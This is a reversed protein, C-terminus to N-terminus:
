PRAVSLLAHVVSTVPTAVGHRAAARLVAGTIADCELDEGALFARLMSTTADAPRAQLQRLITPIDTAALRAGCLRATEVTEAIMAKALTAIQPDRLIGLPRKTLATLSGSSANVCLKRWQETRFDDVCQVVARSGAFLRAVDHGDSDDAVILEPTTRRFVSGDSLREAACRVVCEVIASPAVWRALRRHAGLGNQLVLVRTGPGLLDGFGEAAQATAPTKTALLIWDQLQPCAARRLIPCSYTRTGDNTRVTIGSRSTRSLITVDHRDAALLEAAFCTGIAGAGVITIHM